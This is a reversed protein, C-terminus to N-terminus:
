IIQAQWQTNSPTMKKLNQLTLFIFIAFYCTNVSKLELVNQLEHQNQGHSLSTKENPEAMEMPFPNM